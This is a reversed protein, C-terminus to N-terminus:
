FKIKRIKTFNSEYVRIKRVKSYSLLTNEHHQLKTSSHVSYNVELQMQIAIKWYEFTGLLNQLVTLDVSLLFFTAPENM